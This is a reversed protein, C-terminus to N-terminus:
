CSGVALGNSCDGVAIAMPPLTGGATAATLVRGLRTLMELCAVLATPVVAAPAFGVAAEQAAAAGAAETVVLEPCPRPASSTPCLISIQHDPFLSNKGPVTFANVELTAVWRSIADDHTLM